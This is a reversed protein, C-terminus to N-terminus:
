LNVNDLARFWDFQNAASTIPENDVKEYHWVTRKYPPPYLISLNYKAFFIKHHCGSYLSSHVGNELVLNPESTFILNRCSSSYNLIHTPEQVLQRLSYNSTVVDFMFSEPSIIDNKCWSKSKASFDDLVVTM